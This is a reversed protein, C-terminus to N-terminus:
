CDDCCTCTVEACDVSLYQLNWYNSGRLACLESSVSGTLNNEHLTLTRLSTLLQFAAPIVGSFQNNNLKIELKNGALSGFADPLTGSFLNESFDFEQLKTFDGIKDSITGQIDNGNLNM